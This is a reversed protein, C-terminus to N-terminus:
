SEVIADLARHYDEPSAFLKHAQQRKLAEAMSAESESTSRLRAILQDVKATEYANDPSVFAPKHLTEKYGLILLNSLFARRIANLIEGGQNIDLYFDCTAFLEDVKKMEINPLMRANKYKSHSLLKQSMETIAGVYFTMDPLAEMLHALGEIQDSNTLILIRHKEDEQAAIDEEVSTSRELQLSSEEVDKIGNVNENYGNTSGNKLINGNLDRTFPYIYGLEAIVKKPAGLTLMKEYADHMQVMVKETRNATGQLIPTMNGPIGDRIPEQWFLVDRKPRNAKLRQSVFFPTSLSNFFIPEKDYGLKEMFYVVFDTKTRFIRTVGAEELTVDGTTFNETIVQRGDDDFYCKMMQKQTSDLVTQAFRHGYQDYHDSWRVTGKQDLWDVIKIYRKNKPEAYYIRARQEGFDIVEGKENTGKTEWFDPVPLENFFLPQPTKEKKTRTFYEYPSTVGEPLYGDYIVSVAKVDYGSQRLSYLLDEGEENVIDM